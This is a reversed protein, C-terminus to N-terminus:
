EHGGPLLTEPHDYLTTKIIQSQTTGDAFLTTLPSRPDATAASRLTKGNQRTLTFGRRLIEGPDLMRATQAAHDLIRRNDALKQRIRRRFQSSLHGLTSEEKGLLRRIAHRLEREAQKTRHREEGTIGSTAASLRFRHRHLEQKERYLLRSSGTLLRQGGRRLRSEALRTHREFAGRLRFTAGELEEERAELIERTAAVVSRELEELRESFRLLGAIFFEAVATPTKQRTHAVLDVITEDKEHGIGTVVPLPFQAVAYALDFHDFCSLDAQSGGGRLIAVADFAEEERFIADLAALISPVAESGQMFAEFLRHEFHFGYANRGLQDAFDQYGAATASSIVAIRQPVLPLPLERNMHFVGAEELRRIIERRKRSLDGLTYTPDIDKINLSLGYSPHYDVSVQALIKIGEGLPQGTTTEFYSRVMRFTYSWITARARATLEDTAEDKEVLELYCHGSRNVKMESIEAVVWLTSPFADQLTNRILTNLELLTMNGHPSKEM